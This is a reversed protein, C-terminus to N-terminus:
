KAEVPINTVTVTPTYFGEEDPEGWDLTVEAQRSEAVMECLAEMLRRSMRVNRYLDGIEMEYKM